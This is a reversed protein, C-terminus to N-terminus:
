VKQGVLKWAAKLQPPYRRLEARWAETQVERGLRDTIQNWSKAASKLADEPKKRGAYAEQLNSNLVDIYEPGGRLGIDPFAIRTNALLTPLVGKGYAKIVRPDSFHNIRYADLIGVRAVVRAGESPGTLWQCILYMAEPNRGYRSVSWTWGVVHPAARVLTGKVWSGPMVAAAAHGAIKSNKPDNAFKGLSIWSTAQVAKGAPFAQYLASWDGTVAEPPMHKRTVTVLEELASVGAESVIQPEADRNMYIGGRSFFRAAWNVYAFTRNGFLFAGRYGAAPRDFFTAIKDFQDWTDPPKLAFGYKDEFQAKLKPNTFLDQRYFYTFADDDNNLSWTRNRYQTTFSGVPQVYGVRSDIMEPRYKRVWGDIPSILGAEAFDGIWNAMHLLADPTGTKATAEQIAKTHIQGLDGVQITKVKIGVLKELQQFSPVVNTQSGGPIMVTFQQGSKLKKDAILKKLGNLARGEVTTDEVAAQRAFAPASGVLAGVGIAAAGTLLEGRSLSPNLGDAPELEDLEKWPTM